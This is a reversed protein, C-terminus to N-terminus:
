LSWVFCDKRHPFKVGLFTTQVDISLPVNMNGSRKGRLGLPLVFTSVNSKWSPKPFMDQQPHMNVTDRKKNTTHPLPTCACPCARDTSAQM